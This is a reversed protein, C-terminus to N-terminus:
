HCMQFREGMGHVLEYKSGIPLAGVIDLKARYENIRGVDELGCDEFVLKLAEGTLQKVGLDLHKGFKIMGVGYIYVSDSM